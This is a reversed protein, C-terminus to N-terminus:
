SERKFFTKSGVNLFRYTQTEKVTPCCAPDNTGHVTLEFTVESGQIRIGDVLDRDQLDPLDSLYPKPTGRDNMVVYTLPWVGTGGTNVYVTVVADQTGDGNLDGYGIAPGIQAYGAPNGQADTFSEDGDSLHITSFDFGNGAPYTLNKLMDESLPTGVETSSPTAVPTQMNSARSGSCGAGLLAVM